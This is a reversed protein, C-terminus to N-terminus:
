AHVAQAVLKVGLAACVRSVTDFRPQADPRLARYLAERSIGSARAIETMGRARAITGLAHAFGAPDNEELVITLYEAIAEQDPLHEAMDFEPLESVNIKKTM